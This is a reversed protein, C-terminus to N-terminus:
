EINIKLHEVGYSVWYIMKVPIAPQNFTASDTFTSDLSRMVPRRQGIFNLKHSCRSIDFHSRKVASFISM